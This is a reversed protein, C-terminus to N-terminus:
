VFSNQMYWQISKKIGDAIDTKPTYNLLKKAKSIDAVFKLIEGTRNEKILIKNHGNMYKQILHAVETLFTGKGTAINFVDNAVRDFKQICKIIGEVTDDIYTFDLMKERGYVILDKNAKTLRIFLPVLRDSEDYKGYVNSFRLIVFNIDYCKHYAYVFAEGGLKSATYPSECLFVHVEEEKKSLSDTNGYVERSSAFILKKIKHRRCYELVNFLIDLNEKALIPNKVLQYVRANAALHVVLDAAPLSDTQEFDRLDRLITLNNVTESWKNKRKDVGIVEYGEKLLAECLATGITGSSGTVLIRKIASM